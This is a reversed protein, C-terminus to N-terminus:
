AAIATGSRGRRQVVRIRVLIWLAAVGDRWDLKKGAERSRAVYTIPIEFPRINQRLLKGTIEAEVGFGPQRLDLARFLSLPMLKFCTAIDSLWANYLVNAFM